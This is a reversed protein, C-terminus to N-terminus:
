LAWRPIKFLAPPLSCAPMKRSITTDWRGRSLSLCIIGPPLSPVLTLHDVTESGACLPSGNSRSGETRREMSKSTLGKGLEDHSARSRVFFLYEM